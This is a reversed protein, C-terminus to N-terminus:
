SKLNSIASQPQICEKSGVESGKFRFDVKEFRFDGSEVVGTYQGMPFLNNFDGGGPTVLKSRQGAVRFPRLGPSGSAPAPNM